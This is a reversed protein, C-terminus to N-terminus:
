QGNTKPMGAATSTPFCISSETFDRPPTMCTTTIVRRPSRHAFSSGRLLTVGRISVRLASAKLFVTKGTYIASISDPDSISLYNPGLRVTPGFRKHLSLTTSHHDRRWVDLLRWMDTFNAFFPGPYRHLGHHYYCSGLYVCLLAVCSLSASQWLTDQCFKVSYAVQHFVKSTTSM